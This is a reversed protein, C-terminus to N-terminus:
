TAPDRMLAFHFTSSVSAQWLPAIVGSASACASFWLKSSIDREINESVALRSRSRDKSLLSQPLPWPM